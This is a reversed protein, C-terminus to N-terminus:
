LAVAHGMMAGLYLFFSDTSEIKGLNYEGVLVGTAAPRVSINLGVTEPANWNLPSRKAHVTAIGADGSLYTILAVGPHQPDYAYVIGIAQPDAEDTLWNSHFPSSPDTQVGNRDFHRLGWYPLSPNVFKWEPLDAPLARDPEAEKMRSLMEDLYGRNSAVLIINDGSFVVYSTWIDEELREEFIFAQVGQIREQRMAGGAIARRLAKDNGVGDLFSAIACGEFPALGLGKPRRFGRSGEIVFSLRKGQLKSLLLEKKFSFLLLPQNEFRLEIERHSIPHNPDWTKPTWEPEHPTSLAFPGRAVAISETDAPFWKLAQDITQSSAIGSSSSECSLCPIKCLIALAFATRMLLHM